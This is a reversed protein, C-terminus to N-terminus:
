NVAYGRGQMCAGLARNYASSQSAAAASQQSQAAAYQQQYAQEQAAQQRAQDRRRFGGVLAGTAAGIAAGKGADGGIAGGVAGIAAGRGAGRVVQGSQPAQSPPPPPPAGQSASAAPAQTPDFGTQQVAWQHCSFRDREQQEQNQGKSPYFYVGQPRAPMSTVTVSTALLCGTLVRLMGIRRSSNSESRKPAKANSFNM